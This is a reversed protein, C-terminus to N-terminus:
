EYFVVTCSYIFWLYLKGWHTVIVCTDLELNRPNEIMKEELPIVASLHKNGNEEVM